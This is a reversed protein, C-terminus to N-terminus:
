PLVRPDSMIAAALSMYSNLGLVSNTWMGMWVAVTAFVTVERTLPQATSSNATLGDDWPQAAKKQGVSM